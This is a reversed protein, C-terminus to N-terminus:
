LRRNLSFRRPKSSSPQESEEVRTKLAPYHKLRYEAGSELILKANAGKDLLMDIVKESNGEPDPPRNIAFHLATRKIGDQVNVDCQYELLLKVMECGQASDAQKAADMLVTQGQDNQTNTYESAQVTSRKLLAYMIKPHALVAHHLLTWGDEDYIRLEDDEMVALLAKATDVDKLKIAELLPSRAVDLISERSINRSDSDALDSDSDDLDISSADVVGEESAHGADADVAQAHTQGTGSPGATVEQADIARETLTADEGFGPETSTRELRQSLLQELLQEVRQVRASDIQREARDARRESSALLHFALSINRIQRDILNQQSNIFDEEFVFKVRDPLSKLLKEERVENLPQLQEIMSELSIKCRRISSRLVKEVALDHKSTERGHQHEKARAKLERRVGIALKELDKCQDLWRQAEPKAHVVKKVLCVLDYALSVVHYSSSLTQLTGSM